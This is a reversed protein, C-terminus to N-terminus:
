RMPPVSINGTRCYQRSVEPCAVFERLDKSLCLRVETLDGRTCEVAMMGPRLRPNAAVFARQVDIPSWSQAERANTFSPPIVVAERARRVDAFYDTPSKGSCTGHKRWEYRALGEDPYLGAVNQLAIRSPWRGAPGCDSPFGREYQPWLGHVVFGLNAGPECQSRAKASGGSDCFGPSWSLSLVYFDFDGPVSAGRPRPMGARRDESQGAAETRQLPAKDACHDLICDGDAQALAPSATLTYLVCLAAIAGTIFRFGSQM